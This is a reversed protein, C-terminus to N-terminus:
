KNGRYQSVAAHHKEVVVQILEAPEIVKIYDSWGLVWSILEPSLGVDMRLLLDGSKTSEMKQSPHWIRGVIHHSVDKKFQLTVQFPESAFLGFKGEWFAIPDFCPDDPYTDGLKLNQIRQIALLVFNEFRRVYGVVYLSGQYFVLRHPEFYFAKITEQYANFYTVLCRRKRLIAELLGEITEDHGSYDFMGASYNEYLQASELGETELFVKDPVIQEIKEILSNVEETFYTNRFVKLNERLMHAAVYENVGLTRPIFSRFSSELYWENQNAKSKRSSLPIGAAQIRQFDRQLTRVNVQEDFRQFLQQTTLKTGTGLIQIIRLIREIQPIDSM